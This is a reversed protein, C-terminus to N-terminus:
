HANLNIYHFSYHWRYNLVSCSNETEGRTRSFRFGGQEWLHFTIGTGEEDWWIINWPYKHAEQIGSCYQWSPLGGTWLSYGHSAIWATIIAYKRLSQSSLVFFRPVNSSFFIIKWDRLSGHFTQNWCIRKLDMKIVQWEFVISFKYFSQFLSSLKSTRMLIDWLYKLTLIMDLIIVFISYM